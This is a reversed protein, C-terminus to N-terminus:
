QPKNNRASDANDTASNVTKGSSDAMTSRQGTSDGAQTAPMDTSRNKELEISNTTDTGSGASDNSRSNCALIFLLSVLGVSFYKKM